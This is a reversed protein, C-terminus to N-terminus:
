LARTPTQSLSPSETSRAPSGHIWGRASSATNSLGVRVSIGAERAQTESMGVSAVEPDTFTVRPVASYDALSHQRGLIDAAAIRAQYMAVHTFAGKGTIDRRGM